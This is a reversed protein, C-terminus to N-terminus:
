STCISDILSIAYSTTFFSFNDFQQLIAIKKGSLM